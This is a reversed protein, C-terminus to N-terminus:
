LRPACRETEEYRKTCYALIGYLRAFLQQDARKTPTKWVVRDYGFLTAPLRIAGVVEPQDIREVSGRVVRVAIRNERDGERQQM